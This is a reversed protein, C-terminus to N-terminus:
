SVTHDVNAVVAVIPVRVVTQVTRRETGHVSVVILPFINVTGYHPITSPPEVGTMLGEQVSRPGRFIPPVGPIRGYLTDAVYCFDSHHNFRCLYM